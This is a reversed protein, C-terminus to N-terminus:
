IEEFYYIDDEPYGLVDVAYDQMADLLHILGNYTNRPHTNEILTRKQERLLNWDIGDFFDKAM